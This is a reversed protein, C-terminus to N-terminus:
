FPLLLEANFGDLTRPASPNLTQGSIVKKYLEVYKATMKQISFNSEVFTRISDGSFQNENLTIKEIFDSYSNCIFGTQPTVLEPLSGFSSAIVPKGQSYAEIVAVGFPEHWKVPFLLADTRRILELKKEDDVMGHSHIWPSLNWVRGGAVHLHKKAARAARVCDALNKVPWKAKALFLFRNWNSKSHTTPEYPYLDLDICNYVFVTSGHNQAHRASLFVTNKDFLESARGNGHITVLTPYDLPANPTASLHVVETDNPILNKWHTKSENRDILKVGIETVESAPHGILTVQHGLKVLEKMHWYLIRETGGYRAVPIPHSYEIVIRM